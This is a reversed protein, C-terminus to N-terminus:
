SQVSLFDASLERIRETYTCVSLLLVSPTEIAEFRHLVAFKSVFFHLLILSVKSDTPIKHPDQDLMKGSHESGPNLASVSRSYTCLEPSFAILNDSFLNGEM